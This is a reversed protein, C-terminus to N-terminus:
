RHSNHSGHTQLAILSLLFFALRTTTLRTCTVKLPISSSTVFTILGSEPRLGPSWPHGHYPDWIFKTVNCSCGTSHDNKAPLKGRLIHPVVAHATNFDWTRDPGVRTSIWGTVYLVLQSQGALCGRSKEIGGVVKENFMNATKDVYSLWRPM